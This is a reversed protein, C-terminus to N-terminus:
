VESGIGEEIWPSNHRRTTSRESEAPLPLVGRSQSDCESHDAHSRDLFAEGDFGVLTQELALSLLVPPIPVM